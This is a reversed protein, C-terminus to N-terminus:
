NLQKISGLCRDCGIWKRIGNGTKRPVAKKGCTCKGNVVARHRAKTCDMCVNWGGSADFVGLPKSCGECNGYKNEETEDVKKRRKRSALDEVVVSEKYMQGKKAKFYFWTPKPTAGNGPPAIVLCKVNANQVFVQHQKRQYVNEVDALV